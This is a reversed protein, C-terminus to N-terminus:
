IMYWFIFTTLNVNQTNRTQWLFVCPVCRESPLYSISITRPVPTFSYILTIDFFPITIGQFCKLCFPFTPLHFAQSCFFTWLALYLFDSFILSPASLWIMGDLGTHFSFDFGLCLPSCGPTPILVIVSGSSCKLCCLGCQLM